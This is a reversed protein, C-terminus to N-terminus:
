FKFTQVDWISVLYDCTFLPPWVKDFYVHLSRVPNGWPAICCTVSPFFTPYMTNPLFSYQCYSASLSALQCYNLFNCFLLHSIVYDAAAQLTVHDGWEGNRCGWEKETVRNIITITASKSIQVTSCWVCIYLVPVSPIAYKGMNKVYDTYKMPVYNSYADPAAKLQGM